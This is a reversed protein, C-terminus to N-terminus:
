SDEIPRVERDIFQRLSARLELLEDPIDILPM